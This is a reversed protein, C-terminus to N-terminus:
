QNDSTGGHGKMFRFLDSKTSFIVSTDSSLTSRYLEMTKTFEYFEIAEKSKNYAAAYTTTAAADADGKLTEVQKYAESEIRLLEKAMEGLIRDGEGKGEARYEMAIAQRETTM